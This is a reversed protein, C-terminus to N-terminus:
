TELPEIDTGLQELLSRLQPFDSAKDFFFRVGYQAGLRRYADSVNNSFIIKLNEQPLATKALSRLLSMGNGEKLQIDLILVDCPVMRLQEFADNETDSFGTLIIGPIDGIVEIILDRVAISDEILFIRLLGNSRHSPLASAKDSM